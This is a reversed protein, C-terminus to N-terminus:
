INDDVSGWEKENESGSELSVNLPIVSSISDFYCVIHMLKTEDKMGEAEVIDKFEKWTFIPM